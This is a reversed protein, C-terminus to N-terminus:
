IYIHIYMYVGSSQSSGSVKDTTILKVGAYLSYIYINIYTHIHIFTHMYINQKYTHIYTHIYAHTIYLIIIKPFNLVKEKKLVKIIIIVYIYSLYALSFSLLLYM